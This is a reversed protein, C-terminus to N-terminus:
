PARYPKATLADYSAECTEGATRSADLHEALRRVRGVCKGLLDALMGTTATAAPSGPAAPPHGPGANAQVAALQELLRQENSRARAVDAALALTKQKAADTAGKQLQLRRATEQADAILQAEREAAATAAAKAYREAASKAQHRQWGGWALAVVLLWVRWPVAGAIKRLFLLAATM